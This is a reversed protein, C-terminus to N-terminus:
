GTVHTYTNALLLVIAAVWPVWGRKGPALAGAAVLIAIAIVASSSQIAAALGSLSNPYLSAVYSNLQAEM